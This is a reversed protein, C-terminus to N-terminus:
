KYISPRSTIDDYSDNQRLFTSISYHMPGPPHIIPPPEIHALNQCINILNFSILPAKDAVENYKFNNITDESMYGTLHFQKLKSKFKSHKKITTLQYPLNNYLSIAKYIFTEQEYTKMGLKPPMPGLKNELKNRNSRNNILIYKAYHENDTKIIKHVM